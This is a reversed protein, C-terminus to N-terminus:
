SENEISRLNEIAEIFKHKYGGAKIARLYYDKAIELMGLSHYIIGLNYLDTSSQFLSDIDQELIKKAAELKGAKLQEIADSHNGEDIELRTRLDVIGIQNTLINGLGNAIKLSSVKGDEYDIAMLNSGSFVLYTEYNDRKNLYVVGSYIIDAYGNSYHNTNIKDWTRNESDKCPKYDPPPEKLYRCRTSKRYFNFVEDESVSGSRVNFSVKLKIVLDISPDKYGVAPRFKEFTKGIYRYDTRTLVSKGDISLNEAIIDTVIQNDIHIVGSEIIRKKSFNARYEEFKIDDIDLDILITKAKAYEPDNAIKRDSAIYWSTRCGSLFLLAVLLKILLSKM